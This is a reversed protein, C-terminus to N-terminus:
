IVSDAYMQCSVSFCSLPLDNIYMTIFLLPGLISGQPVGMSDKRWIHASVSFPMQRELFLNWCVGSGRLLISTLENQPINLGLDLIATFPTAPQVGLTGDTTNCCDEVPLIAVPGYNGGGGVYIPTIIAKIILGWSFGVEM